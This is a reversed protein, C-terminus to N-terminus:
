LSSIFTNASHWLVYQATRREAVEPNGEVDLGYSLLVCTMAGPMGM